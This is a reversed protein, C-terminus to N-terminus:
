LTPSDHKRFEGDNTAWVHAFAAKEVPKGTAANGDHIGRRANRAVADGGFNRQLWGLTRRTRQM